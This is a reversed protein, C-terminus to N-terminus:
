RDPRVWARRIEEYIKRPERLRPSDSGDGQGWIGLWEEHMWGDPFPGEFDGESNHHRPDGWSDGRASKWWEDMWEFQVAGIANGMGRAGALNETVDKWNQRFYDAQGDEDTGRGEAYADTGMETIVVPRDYLHRVQHWVSGMSYAGSYVNAGYIDIEPANLALERISTANLNGVAVPHDPDIEHIMKATENLFRAYAEPQDVANTRTHPHQNENGLLWFLVYPEDKHDTVMDRVSRKMNEIQVPDAYDTGLDWRAQSGVTYAGVFDGMIFFIGYERNLTRLLAKDYESPNYLGKEDVGHYIRITNAGMKKLLEADGVVFEGEDRRNNRNWDVWSDFMGDNRGNANDDVTMWPRLNIAHASEGVTTAAYTVGKVVFPKGDVLLEWHGNDYRVARVRGQGRWSKPRWFERAVDVPKHPALRGPRTLVTDAEPKNQQSRRVEVFADELILGLEPYLALLKHIRAIAEPAAYWYFSKDKSWVVTRPFHVVLAHYAKVAQRIHGAKRLAEGAFFLRTGEETPALCWAYFDNQAYRTGTYDWVSFDSQQISAFYQFQPDAQHAISPYVGSGAAASLGAPDIIRYAYDTEGVREFKGYKAYDVCPAGPDNLEFDPKPLPEAAVWSACCVGIVAMVALRLRRIM